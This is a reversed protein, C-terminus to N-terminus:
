LCVTCHTKIKDLNLDGHLHRFFFKSNPNQSGFVAGTYYFVSICNTGPHSAANIRTHCGPIRKWARLQTLQGRWTERPLDRGGVLRQTTLRSTGPQSFKGTQKMVSPVSLEASNGFTKRLLPLNNQEFIKAVPMCRWGAFAHFRGDQSVQGRNKQTHSKDIIWSGLSTPLLAFSQM